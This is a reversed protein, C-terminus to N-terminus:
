SRSQRDGPIAPLLVRFTTGGTPPSACSIMGGHAAVIERALPLGLGMGCPKTTSFPAFVDVGAPLGPGDDNVDVYVHQNEARALVELKGGDPMAEIANKCLNLFVQKLKDGNGLVQPLEPEVRCAIRVDHQAARGALLETVQRVIGSVDILTLLMKSPDRYARFDELLMNLRTIEALITDVKPILSGREPRDVVRRLIQIQLYIANLPNSVEHALVSAMMGINALRESEALKARLALKETVDQGVGLLGLLDGEATRVANVEWEIQRVEGTRTVIPGVVPCVHAQFLDERQMLREFKVRLRDRDPEPVFGDFWDAGAVEQYSRGCLERMHDNFLVVRGTPDLFLVISHSTSLLREVFDSEAALRSQVQFFPM